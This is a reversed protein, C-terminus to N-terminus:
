RAATAPSPAPLEAIRRARELDLNRANVAEPAEPPPGPPGQMIERRSVCVPEGARGLVPRGNSGIVGVCAPIKSPDVTGNAKVWAPTPPPEALTASRAPTRDQTGVAVTGFLVTGAIVSAMLTLAKRSIAM